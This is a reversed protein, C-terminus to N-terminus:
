KRPKKRLLEDGPMPAVDPVQALIRDFDEIRGRKARIEMEERVGWASVQAALALSVLQDVSMKEKEAAETALKALYNPIKAHITTM